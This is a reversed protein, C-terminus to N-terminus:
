FKGFLREFFSLKKEFKVIYVGFNNPTKKAITNHSPMQLDNLNMNFEVKSDSQIKGSKIIKEPNEIDYIKYTSGKKIDIGSFDVMVAKGNKSFLTVRYTDESDNIKTLDLVSKVNFDKVQKWTSNKDLRFNTQWEKLTYDKHKSVRQSNSKRTYYINEDFIWDAKLHKLISNNYHVYGCYAINNKFILSKVHLLRLANNKGIIINNTVTVNEVPAKASYGLTLSAGDGFNTSSTFDSNHYLINSDLIINKAVNIGDKDDSAIIVNDVFNGGPNGNNFIVNHKLTVNKVFEFKSGSSASWVEIGKYYNNFITNNTIYRIKDSQNQVYLGVGSGRVKSMYGNNYILCGDIVTGGTRKWSGLGSGPNNHIKLNIFKCDEGDVHSIGNVVQFDKDKMSRSFDGLFTIELDQFIVNGGRVELVSNLKSNINGNILIKDNKYPRVKIFTNKDVTTITSIYRGNYTGEHLYIIDNDNVSNIDQNLATQLDWPKTISGNGSTKGPNTKHNEPFVHFIQQASITVASFLFSIILLKLKM